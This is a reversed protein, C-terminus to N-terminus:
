ATAMATQGDTPGGQWHEEVYSKLSDAFKLCDPFFPFGRLSMVMKIFKM